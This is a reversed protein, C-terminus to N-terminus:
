WPVDKFGLKYGTINALPHAVLALGIYFIWMQLSIPKVFSIFIGAGILLDLQDWPFFKDGPKVNFRRKILSKFADGFLAGFGLLFGVLIASEKQYNIYSINAFSGYQYLLKQLFVVVTATIIGVIFGGWTKHSGLIPKGRWTKGGDIPKYLFKLYKKCCVPAMNAFMAPLAFYTSTLIFNLM